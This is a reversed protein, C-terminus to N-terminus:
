IRSPPNALTSPTANRYPRTAPKTSATTTSTCCAAHNLSTERRIAILSWSIGTCSREVTMSPCYPMVTIPARHVAVTLWSATITRRTSRCHATRCCLPWALSRTHRCSAAGHRWNPATDIRRLWQEPSNRPWKTACHTPFSLPLNRGTRLVRNSKAITSSRRHSFERFRGSEMSDLQKQWAQGLSRQFVTYARELDDKIAPVDYETQRWAAVVHRYAQDVRYLRDRYLEFGQEPTNIEDIVAPAASLENRLRCAADITQYEKQYDSYWLSTRRAAIVREAQEASLSGTSFREYM